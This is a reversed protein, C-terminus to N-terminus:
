PDKIGRHRFVNRARNFIPASFFLSLSLAIISIPYNAFTLTQTRAHTFYYRGHCPPPPCPHLVYVSLACPLLSFLFLLTQGRASVCAYVPRYSRGRRRAVSSERTPSLGITKSNASRRLSIGSIRNSMGSHNQNDSRERERERERERQADKRSSVKLDCASEPTKFIALTM